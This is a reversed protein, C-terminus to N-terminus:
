TSVEVAADLKSYYKSIEAAGYKLRFKQVIDVVKASVQVPKAKMVITRAKAAIQVEPNTLINKYWKSDSGAVPLLYLREGELVFWVPRSSNRGTKRDKTTLEIERTSMLTNLFDPDAMPWSV